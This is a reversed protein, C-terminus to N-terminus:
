TCWCPISTRSPAPFRITAATSTWSTSATQALMDIYRQWMEVDDLLLQPRTHIFPNSARFAIFPRQRTPSSNGGVAAWDSAAGANVIQEALELLGYMRGVDDSGVITVAAGRVSLGFGEPGSGPRNASWSLRPM